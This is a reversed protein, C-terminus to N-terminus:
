AVLQGDQGPREAKPNDRWRFHVVIPFEHKKALRECERWADQAAQGQISIGLDSRYTFGAENLPTSRAPIRLIEVLREKEFGRRKVAAIAALLIASWTPKPLKRGDVEARLPKTFSLGPATRFKELSASSENDALPPSPLNDNEIGLRDLADNVVRDITDGPTSTGFWTKL